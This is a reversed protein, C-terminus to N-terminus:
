QKLRMAVEQWSPRGDYAPDRRHGKDKYGVGIYRPPPLQKKPVGGEKSPLIHYKGKLHREVGNLNRSPILFHELNEKIRMSLGRLTSQFSTPSFRTEKLLKTLQALAEGFKENFHPDKEAKEQCWLLNDYLALIDGLTVEELRHVLISCLYRELTM